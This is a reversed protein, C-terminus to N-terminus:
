RKKGAEINSLLKDNKDILHKVDSKLEEKEIYLM